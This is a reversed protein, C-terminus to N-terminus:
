THHQRHTKMSAKKDPQPLDKRNRTKQTNTDHFLTENSWFSKRCKNFQDHLMKDKIRNIHNIVNVPKQINFWGQIGPVDWKTMTYLGKTCQQIWKALM